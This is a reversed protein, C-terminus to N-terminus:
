DRDFALVGIAIALVIPFLTMVSGALFIFADSTRTAAVLTRIGAIDAALMAVGFLLGVAAGMLCQTVLYAPIGARARRFAM